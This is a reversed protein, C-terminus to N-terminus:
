IQRKHVQEKTKEGGKGDLQEFCGLLVLDFTLLRFLGVFTLLRGSDFKAPLSKTEKRRRTKKQM